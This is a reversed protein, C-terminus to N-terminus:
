VHLVSEFGSGGYENGRQVRKWLWTLGFGWFLSLWGLLNEERSIVDLAGLVRASIHLDLLSTTGLDIRELFDRYRLWLIVLYQDLDLPRLNRVV